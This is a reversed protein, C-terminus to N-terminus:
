WPLIFTAWDDLGEEAGRTARLTLVAMSLLTSRGERQLGPIRQLGREAPKVRGGQSGATSWGVPCIGVGPRERVGGLGEQCSRQGELEETRPVLVNFHSCFCTNITWAAM